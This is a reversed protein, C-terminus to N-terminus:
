RMLDPRWKAIDPFLISRALGEIMAFAFPTNGAFMWSLAVDSVISSVTFVNMAIPPAILGLEAVLMITNGFWILDVGPAQMFPLFFSAGLLLIGLRM